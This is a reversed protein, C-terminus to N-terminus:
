EDGTQRPKAKEKPIEGIFVVKLTIMEGFTLPQLFPSPKTHFGLVKFKRFVLDRGKLAIVAGIVHDRNDWISRGVLYDMMSGFRDIPHLVDVFEGTGSDWVQLFFFPDEPEIYEFGLYLEYNLEPRGWFDPYGTPPEGVRKDWFGTEPTEDTM